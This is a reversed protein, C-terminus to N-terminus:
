IGFTNISITYWTLLILIFFQQKWITILKIYHYKRYNSLKFPIKSPVTTSKGKVSVIRIWNLGFKTMINISMIDQSRNTVLWITWSARSNHYRWKDFKIPRSKTCVQFIRRWDDGFKFLRNISMIYEGLKIVMRNDDM